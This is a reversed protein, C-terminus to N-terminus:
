ITIFCELIKNIYVSDLAQTYNVLINYLDTNHEYCKEFMKGIMFVDVTSKKPRFGM